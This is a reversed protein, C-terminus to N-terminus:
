WSMFTFFPLLNHWRALTSQTSVTTNKIYYIWNLRWCVYWYSWWCGVFGFWKSGVKVMLVFGLVATYAKIYSEFGLRFVTEGWCHLTCLIYGLSGHSHSAYLGELSGMHSLLWGCPHTSGKLYHSTATYSLSLLTGMVCVIPFLLGYKKMESDMSFAFAM